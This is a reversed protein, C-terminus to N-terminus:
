QYMERQRRRKLYGYGAYILIGLSLFIVIINGTTLGSFLGLGGLAFFLIAGCCIFKLTLVVVSLEKREM